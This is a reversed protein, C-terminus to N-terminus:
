KKRRAPLTRYSPNGSGRTSVEIGVTKGTSMKAKLEDDHRRRVRKSDGM